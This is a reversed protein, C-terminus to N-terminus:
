KSAMVFLDKLHHVPHPFAIVNQLVFSLIYRRECAQECIAHSADVVHLMIRLLEDFLLQGTAIDVLGLHKGTYLFSVHGKSQKNLYAVFQHLSVLFQIGNSDSGLWEAGREEYRKWNRYRVGQRWSIRIFWNV